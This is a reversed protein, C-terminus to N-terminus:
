RLRALEAKLGDEDLKVRESSDRWKAEILGEKASRKSVTLRLPAGILDADNFKVGASAQRDDHLVAWGDAQLQTYLSEAQAAVAERRVDLAVLHVDFPACPVPWLIGYEDYHCEVIAAALRGLDLRWTATWLPQGRGAADLYEAEPQCPAPLSSEALAFATEMELAAGCHPCADGPEILALDLWEGPVFDRPVNVNQIHYDPRNAGGVFNKGSRVSPDAVVRVLSQDLGIPSAYGGVAGLPELEHELSAYYQDTGLVRALKSEDVARDGRIVICTVSGEVSVFVMKLTKSAPIGLFEALSAITDCDPTEIEEPSLEIEDPPEPWTTTAWSREAAFGCGLCHLLEEDGSAHVFLVRRGSAGADAWLTPV